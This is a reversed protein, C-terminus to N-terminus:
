KTLGSSATKTTILYLLANSGCTCSHSKIISVCCYVMNRNGACWARRQQSWCSPSPPWSCWPTTRAREAPCSCREEGWAPHLQATRTCGLHQRSRRLSQHRASPASRCRPSFLLVWPHSKLKVPELVLSRFTSVTDVTTVIEARISKYPPGEETCFVNM